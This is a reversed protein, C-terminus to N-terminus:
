KNNFNTVEKVLEQEERFKKNAAREENISLHSTSTKKEKKSKM